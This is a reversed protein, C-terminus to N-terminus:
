IKDYGNELLSITQGGTPIRKVRLGSSRKVGNTTKHIHTQYPYLHFYCGIILVTM